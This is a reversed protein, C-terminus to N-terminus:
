VAVLLEIADYEVTPISEGRGKTKREIEVLGVNELIEMDTVISKIDRKSLRALEQLSKPHKEKILHLLELRKPTLAKRFGEISEFYLGKERKVSEGREIAEGTKVFDALAEKVGKIGIKVKKVKM